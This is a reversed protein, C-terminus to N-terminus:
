LAVVFQEVGELQVVKMQGSFASQGEAAVHLVVAAALVLAEVKVKFPVVKSERFQLLLILLDAVLIFHEKKKVLMQLSDIEFSNGVVEYGRIQFLLLDLVQKLFDVRFKEERGFLIEEEFQLVLLFSKQSNERVLNANEAISILLPENLKLM